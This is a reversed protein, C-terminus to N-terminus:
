QQKVEHTRRYLPIAQVFQGQRDHDIAAKFEQLTLLSSVCFNRKIQTKVAYRHKELLASLM